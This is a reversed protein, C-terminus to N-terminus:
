QNGEIFYISSRTTMSFILIGHVLIPLERHISQCSSAVGVFSFYCYLMLIQIYVNLAGSVSKFHGGLFILCINQYFNNM